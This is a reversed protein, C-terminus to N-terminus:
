SIICIDENPIKLGLLKHVLQALVLVPDRRHRECRIPPQQQRHPVEEVPLQKHPVHRAPADHRIHLQGRGPTRGDVLGVDVLTRRRLHRLHTRRQHHPCRRRSCPLHACPLLPVEHGRAPAASCAVDLASLGGVEDEGSSPGVDGEPGEGGGSTGKSLVLNARSDIYIM